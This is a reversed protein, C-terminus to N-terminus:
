VYMHRCQKLTVESQKLDSYSAKEFVIEWCLKLSLDNLSGTESTRISARSSAGRCLGGTPKTGQLSEVHGRAELWLM